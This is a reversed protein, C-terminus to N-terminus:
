DRRDNFIDFEDGTHTSHISHSEAGHEREVDHLTKHLSRWLYNANSGYLDHGSIDPSGAVGMATREIMSRVAPDSQGHGHVIHSHIRNVSTFPSMRMDEAAQRRAQEKPSTFCNVCNKGLAPHNYSELSDLKTGCTKCHTPESTRDRAM